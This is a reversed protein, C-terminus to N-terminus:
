FLAITLLFVSREEGDIIDQMARLYHFHFFFNSFPIPFHISSRVEYASISESSSEENRGNPYPKGDITVVGSAWSFGLYRYSTTLPHTSPPYPLPPTLFSPNLLPPSLPPSPHPSSPPLTSPHPRIPQNTAMSPSVPLCTSTRFLHSSM